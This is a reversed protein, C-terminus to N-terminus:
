FEHRKQLWDLYRCLKQCRLAVQLSQSSALWSVKYKWNMSCKKFPRHCWLWECRSTPTGHVGEVELWIWVESCSAPAAIRCSQFQSCRPIWWLLEAPDGLDWGWLPVRLWVLWIAGLGPWAVILLSIVTWDFWQAHCHSHFFSYHMQPLACIYMPKVQYPCDLFYALSSTLGFVTGIFVFSSCSRRSHHCHEKLPWLMLVIQAETQINRGSNYAVSGRSDGFRSQQTKDM